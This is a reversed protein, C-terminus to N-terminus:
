IIEILDKRSLPINGVRGVQLASSISGIYAAEWISAGSAISMAASILLSDGAGAVDKPYNNLAKVRDTNFISKKNDQAHIILGEEGLKLIINEAHTKKQVLDALVILGDDQNLTSVRAERETPTLLNMKNYKSIDGIQSSSQCDAVMKIKNKKCIEILKSVLKKPLCGYNFDSFVVLDYSKVRKKFTNFLKQQIYNQISNQNLHSVRMLTKGQSRYRQKLSTKRSLDLLIKSEM